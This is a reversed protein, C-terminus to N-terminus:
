TIGWAWCTTMIRVATSRRAHHQRSRRRRPHPSPSVPAHRGTWPGLDRRIALAHRPLPVVQPLKMKMRTGRVSWLTGDWDIESRSKGRLETNRPFLDASLLLDARVQLEGSSHRIAAMLKGTSGPDTLGAFGGRAQTVM